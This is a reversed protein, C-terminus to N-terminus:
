VLSANVGELVEKQLGMLSPDHRRPRSSTAAYEASPMAAVNLIRHLAALEAEVEEETLTLSVLTAAADRGAGSGPTVGVATSYEGGSEICYDGREPSWAVVRSRHGVPSAVVAEAAEGQARLGRLWAEASDDEKRTNRSDGRRQDGRLPLELPELEALDRLLALQQWLGGRESALASAERQHTRWAALARGFSLWPQQAADCLVYEERHGAEDRDLDLIARRRLCGRLTATRLRNDAAEGARTARILQGFGTAILNQLEQRSGHTAVDLADLLRALGMEVVRQRLLERGSRDQMTVLASRQREDDLEQRLSTLRWVSRLLGYRADIARLGQVQGLEGARALENQLHLTIEEM